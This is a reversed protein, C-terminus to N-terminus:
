TKFIEMAISYLSNTKAAEPSSDSLNKDVFCFLKNLEFCYETYQQWQKNYQSIYEKEEIM